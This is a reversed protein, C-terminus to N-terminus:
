WLKLYPLPDPFSRALTIRHEVRGYGDLTPLRQSYFPWADETVVQVHLHPFWGGNHPPLGVHGITKNSQLVQGARCMVKGLHAYILYVAPKCKLRMVVRPGWGYEEPHDNDVLVVVGPRTAMVPTGAPVNFDVGLHLFTGNKKLYPVNAWLTDRVEHYGGYSWEIGAQEHYQNIKEGILAPDTNRTSKALDDCNLYGCPAGRLTKFLITM